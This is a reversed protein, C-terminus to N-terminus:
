LKEEKQISINAFREYEEITREKGLGFHDLGTLIFEYGAPISARSLYGLLVYIRFRSLTEVPNQDKREWFTARHNRKYNHFMITVSPSYLDFGHTFARIAMSMEEGFFLFPTYPDYPVERIFSGKSFSFGAAWAASIFPQRSFSTTYDSQIRYFGEKDSFKQVYMGGRLKQVQWNEKMANNRDFLNTVIDYENPYQTLISKEPNACMNLQNKLITDWHHIARMHADIQLFYEEGGWHTQIRYRAWTPGRADNHSLREITIKAGNSKIPSCDRELPSNQQCIVIHLHEPHDAQQILNKVTDLCQDDRYSAISVFIIDKKLDYSEPHPISIPGFYKDRYKKPDVSKLEKFRKTWRDESNSFYESKAVDSTKSILVGVFLIFLIFLFILSILLSKKM